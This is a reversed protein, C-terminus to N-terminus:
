AKIWRPLLVPWLLTCGPVILVRFGWSGSAADPDIKGVGKLVFAIAFLFGVLLYLGVLTLIWAVM